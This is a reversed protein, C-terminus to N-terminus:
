GHHNSQLSAGQKKKKEAQEEDEILEDVSGNPHSTEGETGRYRIEESKKRM